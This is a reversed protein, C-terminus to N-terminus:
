PMAPPPKVYAAKTAMCDQLRAVVERAHAADNAQVLFTSAMAPDPSGPHMPRLKVGLNATVGMLESAAASEARGRNLEEAVEPSLHVTIQM